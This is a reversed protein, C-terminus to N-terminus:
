TLPGHGTSFSRRMSIFGESYQAPPLSLEGGGVVAAKAVGVDAAVDTYNGNALTIPKPASLRVNINTKSQKAAM